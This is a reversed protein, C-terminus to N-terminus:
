GNIVTAADEKPMKRMEDALFVVAMLFSLLDAAPTAYMVGDLGFFRPLILILPILFVVM